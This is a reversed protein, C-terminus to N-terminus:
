ATNIGFCISRSDSFHHVSQAILLFRLAAALLPWREVFLECSVASDLVSWSRLTPSFPFTASTITTTTYPINQLTHVTVETCVSLITSVKLLITELLERPLALLPFPQRRPRLISLVSSFALDVVQSWTFGVRRIVLVNTEM